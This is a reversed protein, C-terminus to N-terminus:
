AATGHKEIAANLMACIERARPSLDSASDRMGWIFPAESWYGCM